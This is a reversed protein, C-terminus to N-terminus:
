KSYNSKPLKKATIEYLEKDEFTASRELQRILNEIKRQTIQSSSKFPEIMLVKHEINDNKHGNIQLLFKVKGNIIDKYAIHKGKEVYEDDKNYGM